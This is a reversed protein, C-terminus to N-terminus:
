IEEVDGICLTLAKIHMRENLVSVVGGAGVVVISFSLLLIRMISSTLHFM